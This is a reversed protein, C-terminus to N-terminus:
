KKIRQMSFSKLFRDDPDIPSQLTIKSSSMNVAYINLESWIPSAWSYVNFLKLSLLTYGQPNKKLGVVFIFCWEVNQPYFLLDCYLM